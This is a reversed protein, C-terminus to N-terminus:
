KLTVALQLTRTASAPNSPTAIVTIMTSTSSSQSGAVSTSSSPQPAGGGCGSLGAALAIVALVTAYRRRPRMAGLVMSLLLFAGVSGSPTTSFLSASQATRVLLTTSVSATGSASVTAPSFSCQATAPLGMCSFTVRDAFGNRPTLHLDASAPQASTVTLAGTSTSLSFDASTMSGGDLTFSAANSMHNLLSAKGVAKVFFSYNGAPLTMSGLDFSRTGIPVNAVPM